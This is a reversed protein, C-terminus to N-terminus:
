FDVKTGISVANQDGYFITDASRGIYEVWVRTRNSFTYQYGVVYNQIADEGSVGTDLQGYAASIVNNGFTYAGFLYANWPTDTELGIRNFIPESLGWENYTGREYIFGIDFSGASYGLGIGWQDLDLNVRSDSDFSADSKGNLTIYTVGAYFPGNSYEVSVNWIDVDDSWGRDDNSQGNISLLVSASFGSFKPTTYLVSNDLRFLAGASVVVPENTVTTVGTYLNYGNFSGGLFSTPGLTRSSNFIDIVGIVEYYPTHVTGITLKGFDGKLGVFKPRNGELNGGETMNIGFEYQYIASLGNGLDESGKIGLRSDNNVVDWSNFAGNFAGNFEEDNYDVSVRASGYLVTDAQAVLSVTLTAVITLALISKKM